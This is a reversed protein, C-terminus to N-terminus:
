KEYRENISQKKEKIDEADHVGADIFNDAQANLDKWGRKTPRWMLM